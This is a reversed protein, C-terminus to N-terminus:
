FLFCVHHLKSKDIQINEPCDTSFYTANDICNINWGLYVQEPTSYVSLLPATSGPVLRRFNLTALGATQLWKRNFPPCLFLSHLFVALDIDDKKRRPWYSELFYHNESSIWHKEKPCSCSHRRVQTKGGIKFTNGPSNRAVKGASLLQQLCSGSTRPQLDWIDTLRNPRTTLREYSYPGRSSEAEAARREIWLPQPKRVSQQRTVKHRVILWVNFHSEDSGM